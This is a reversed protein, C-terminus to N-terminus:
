VRLNEPMPVSQSTQRRRRTAIALTGLMALLAASPEPIVSLTVAGGASDLQWSYGSDLAPLSGFALGNDALTGTYTLLTWTGSTVGAFSNIPSVNLTGDLTLGGSITVLDNIGLGTTTDLADLEFGLIATSGLLLDGGFALTGPSTGPALTGHVAATGAVTGGGVLTQASGLSWGGSVASVDLTTAAGLIIQSSNAISAVGTLALTGGTITTAGSYTHAGTLTQAGAGIKTLAMTGEGDAIVGGFAYDAAGANVIEGVTLTSITAAADNRIVGGTGVLGRISENRGNFDLVGGTMEVSADGYIQDNHSGGLRATGGTITLAVGGDSRGVSRATSAGTKALVLTGSSVAVWGNNNDATGALIQTGSGAMHLTTANQVQGNYTSTGSTNVTLTGGGNVAGGGGTLSSATVALGNLDLNGGAVEVTTTSPLAGAVGVRLTGSAIRTQGGYNNGANNLLLIGGDEKRLNGGGTIQGSITMTQGGWTYFTGEKGTNITFTRTAAYAVSAGSTQQISAKGEGNGLSSVVEGNFVVGNSANGLTTDTFRLRGSTITISGQYDNSTNYWTWSGQPSAANNYTIAGTGRIRAYMDGGVNTPSGGPMANGTVTLSGGTGLQLTTGTDGTGGVHIGAISQTTGNLDLTSGGWLLVNTSSPLAGSVGTRTTGARLHTIGAYSNGANNLVLTGGDSRSLRGSGTIAGDITVTRGYGIRINGGNAGLTIGRNAHLTLDHGAGFGSGSAASMNALSGGNLTMADAVASGPVAGLAADSNISLNGGSVLWKGTFSNNGTIVLNHIGGGDWGSSVVGGSTKSITGDGSITGNLNLAGNVTDVTLGDSGVSLPFNLIHAATSNNQILPGNGGAAAFSNGTSGGITRVSSAGSEFIIRHRTTNSADNTMTLQNNNNFRLIEAGPPSITGGSWWNNSDNWNGNTAESRWDLTSQASASQVNFVVLLAGSARLLRSKPKM